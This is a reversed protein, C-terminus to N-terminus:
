DTEYYIRIRKSRLFIYWKLLLIKEMKELFKKTSMKESPAEGDYRM